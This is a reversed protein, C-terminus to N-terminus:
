WKMGSALMGAGLINNMPNSYVPQTSVQTPQYGPIFGALRAFTTYDADAQQQDNTQVMNGYNMLNGSAGFLRDLYGRDLGEATTLTSLNDVMNQRDRNYASNTLADSNLIASMDFQNGALNRNFFSNQLSDASAAAARDNNLNNFVTNIFRDQAQTTLGANTQALNAGQGYSDYAIQKAADDVREGANQDNLFQSVAEGSGGFAGRRAARGAIDASRKSRDEDIRRIAMNTMDERYPNALAAIDGYGIQEVYSAAPMAAMGGGYTAGGQGAYNLGAHQGMSGIYPYLGDSRNVGSSVSGYNDMAKGSYSPTVSHAAQDAMTGAYNQYQNLPTINTQPNELYPAMGSAAGEFLSKQADTVYSPYVPGTTTTQTKSGGGFIGGM